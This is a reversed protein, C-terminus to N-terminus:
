GLLFRNVASIVDGGATGVYFLALLVTEVSEIPTLLASRELASQLPREINSRISTALTPIWARPKATPVNDRIHPNNEVM